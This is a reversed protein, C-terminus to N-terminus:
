GSTILRKKGFPARRFFWFSIRRRPTVILENLFLLSAPESFSSPPLCFPDPVSADVRAPHCDAYFNPLTPKVYNQSTDRKPDDKPFNWYVLIEGPFAQFVKEFAQAVSINDFTGALHPLRTPREGCGMGRTIGGASASPGLEMHHAVAFAAVEPTLLIITLARNASYVEQFCVDTFVLHKIRVDLVNLAVGKEQLVFIGDVQQQVHMGPVSAAVKSLDQLPSGSKTVQTTFHPVAPLNTPGYQGSLAVFASSNDQALVDFIPNLEEGWFHMEQAYVGSVMCFVVVLVAVTRAM